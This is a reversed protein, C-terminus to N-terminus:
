GGAAGGRKNRGLLFYLVSGIFHTAVIVVVWILKETGDLTRNTIGDVLMWLWFASTLLVLALIAVFFGGAFYPALDAFPQM